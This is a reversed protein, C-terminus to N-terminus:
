RESLEKRLQKRISRSIQRRLGWKTDVINGVVKSEGKTSRKRFSWAWGGDYRCPSIVVDFTIVDEPDHERDDM